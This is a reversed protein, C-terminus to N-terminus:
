AQVLHPMALFFTKGLLNPESVVFSVGRHGTTSRSMSVLVDLVKSPTIYMGGIVTWLALSVFRWNSAGVLLCCGTM